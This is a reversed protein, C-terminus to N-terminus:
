DAATELCTGVPRRGWPYSPPAATPDALWRYRVHHTLVRAVYRRTERYPIRAVFADLPAEPDGRVWRRVNGAGANYAAVMLPLCGLRRHLGALHRAALSVNTAPTGLTAPPPPTLGQRRATAAATRPMLQLLGLAGARSVAGPDYGSEVRMMAWLLAAGAEGPLGRAAVTVLARHPRPYAADLRWVQDAAPPARFLGPGGGRTARRWAGEPVGVAAFAAALVRDESGAPARAVVEAAADDLARAAARPFGAAVYFAVTEPLEFPPDPSPTPRPGAAFPDTAPASVGGAALTGRALAAYLGLPEAAIAAALARAAAPSPGDPDGAAAALARARFYHAEAVEGPDADGRGALAGLARAAAAPRDLDFLLVLGEARLARRVLSPALRATVSRRFRRMARLGDAPDARLRLEAALWLAQPARRNARDRRVMAELARIAAEDDGSRSTALAARYRNRFAARGGLRAAARLREAATPYARRSRFHAMGRATLAERRAARGRPLPLSELLDAAEGHRGARRLAAARAEVVDRPPEFGPDLASLAQTVADASPHTPDRSAAVLHRRGADIRGARLAAEGAALHAAVPDAGDGGDDARDGDGQDAGPGEGLLLSLTSRRARAERRVREPVAEASALAGYAEAAPGLADADEVLRAALYLGPGPPLAAAPDELAARGLIERARDPEGAARARAAAAVRGPPVARAPGLAALGAAVAVVACLRGRHRAGPPGVLTGDITARRRPFTRGASTAAANTPRPETAHEGDMPSLQEDDRSQETWDSRMQSRADGRPYQVTGFQSAPSHGSSATQTSNLESGWRNARVKQM